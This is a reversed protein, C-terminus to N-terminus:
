DLAGFVAEIGGLAIRSREAGKDAQPIARRQQTQQQRRRGLRATGVVAFIRGRKDLLPCVKDESNTLRKGTIWILTWHTLDVIAANTGM